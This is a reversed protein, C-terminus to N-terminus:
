GDSISCEAESIRKWNLLLHETGQGLAEEKNPAAQPPQVKDYENACDTIGQGLFFHYTHSGNL